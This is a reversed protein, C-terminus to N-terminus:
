YFSPKFHEYGKNPLIASKNNVSIKIEDDKTVRGIKTIKVDIYNKEVKLFDDESITFLLEYDGGFHLAYDLTKFNKLKYYVTSLNSSIPLMEANIQFGTNKNM